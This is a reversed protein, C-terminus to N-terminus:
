RLAATEPCCAIGLSVVSALCRQAHAHQFCLMKLLLWCLQSMGNCNDFASENRVASLHGLEAAMLPANCAVVAPIVCFM